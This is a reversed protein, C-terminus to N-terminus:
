HMTANGVENPINDDFHRTDDESMLSPRFPAAQLHLTNWDLGDFWPHRMLQDIGDGSDYTYGLRDEDDCLLRKIFDIATNSAM